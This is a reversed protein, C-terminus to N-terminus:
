PEAARRGGASRPVGNAPGSRLPARSPAEVPSQVPSRAQRESGDGGTGAKSRSWRQAVRGPQAGCLASLPVRAGFKAQHFSQVKQKLSEAALSLPEQEAEKGAPSAKRKAKGEWRWCGGARRAPLPLHPPPSCRRLGPHHLAREACGRPSAAARAAPTCAPVVSGAPVETGCPEGAQARVRCGKAGLPRAPM